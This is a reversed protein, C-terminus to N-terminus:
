HYILFGTQEDISLHGEDALRQIFREIDSETQNMSSLSNILHAKLAYRSNPRAHQSKPSKITYLVKEWPTFRKKPQTTANPFNKYGGTAPYKKHYPQTPLGTPEPVNAWVLDDGNLFIRKAYMLKGVFEYIEDETFNVLAEKARDRIKQKLVTMSNPRFTKGCDANLKKVFRTKLATDRADNESIYSITDGCIWLLQEDQFQLLWKQVYQETAAGLFFGKAMANLHNTAAQCSKPLNDPNQFFATKVREYLHADSLFYSLVGQENEVIFGSAIYRNIANRIHSQLDLEECIMNPSEKWVNNKIHRALNTELIARRQFTLINSNAAQRLLKYCLGLYQRQMQDPPISTPTSNETEAAQFTIQVADNDTEGHEPLVVQIPKDQAAMKEILDRLNFATVVKSAKEEMNIQRVLVSFGQDKSLIWVQAEPDSQIIKGVHYSLCFDLANPATWHIKIFHVREMGFHQFLYDSQEVPPTPQNAGIFLWVHTDAAISQVNARHMNEYDIMLHKM